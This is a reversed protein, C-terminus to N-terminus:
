QTRTRSRRADANEQDQLTARADDVRRQQAREAPRLIAVRAEATTIKTRLRELRLEEHALRRRLREAESLTM